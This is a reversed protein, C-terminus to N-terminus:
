TKKFTSVMIRKVDTMYSRAFAYTATFFVIMGSISMLILQQIKSLDKFALESLGYVTTCMFILCAGLPLYMQVVESLQIKLKKTIKGLVYVYVIPSSVLWCILMGYLGWNYVGFWMSAGCIIIAYVHYNFTVRADGLGEIARTIFLSSMQFLAIICIIQFPLIIPLWSSTLVVHVLPEAVLALGIFIPTTVFLLSTHMQIFTKKALEKDTKIRSIAPFILNSFLTGVKNSPLSGFTHAMQYHGTNTTSTYLSLLLLPINGSIYKLGSAFLLTIGFSLLDIISKLRFVFNPIYKYFVFYTVTMFLEAALTGVILSWYKYGMIAMILTVVIGTFAGFMGNLSILKYDLARLAIASPVVKLACLLVMLGAVKIANALKEEEYFEAAVDALLFLIGYLAGGLVFSLWFVTDLEAKSINVRNVVGAAFGTTALMIFIGTLLGSMAVLGYDEPVLLRAVWITSVWSFIQVFLKTSAQWAFGKVM